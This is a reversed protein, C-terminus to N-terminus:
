AKSASCSTLLTQRNISVSWGNITKSSTENFVDNLNDTGMFSMVGAKEPSVFQTFVYQCIESTVRAFDDAEPRKDGQIFQMQINVDNKRVSVKFRQYIGMMLGDYEAFATDGKNYWDAASVKTSSQIINKVDGIFGVSASASCSLGVLVILLLRKM